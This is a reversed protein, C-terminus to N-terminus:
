ENNKGGRRSSLFTVKEAVLEITKKDEIVRTQIRGKVGIVDGQHCFEATNEAINTWLTVDIFDTDYEGEVNKYGRQIELTILGKKNGSELEEITPENTLRGVLIIQNLM